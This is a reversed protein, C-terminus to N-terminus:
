NDLLIAVFKVGTANELDISINSETKLNMSQKSVEENVIKNLLFMHEGDGPLRRISVSTILNHTQREIKHPINLPTNKWTSDFWFM